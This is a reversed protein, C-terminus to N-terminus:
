KVRRKAEIGDIFACLWIYLQGKPLRPSIDRSGHECLQEVRSGGLQTQIYYHGANQKNIGKQYLGKSNPTDAWYKMPQDLLENVLNIRNDLDKTTIKM